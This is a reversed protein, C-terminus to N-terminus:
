KKKKAKLEIKKLEQELEYIEMEHHLVGPHTPHLEQLPEVGKRFFGSAKKEKQAVHIEAHVEAIPEIGVRFEPDKAHNHRFINRLFKKKPKEIRESAYSSSNSTHRAHREQFTQEDQQGEFHHKALLVAMVTYFAAFSLTTLFSLMTRELAVFSFFYILTLFGGIVMVGDYPLSHSKHWDISRM